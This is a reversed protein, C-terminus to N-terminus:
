PGTRGAAYALIAPRLIAVTLAIAVMLPGARGRQQLAARWGLVAVIAVFISYTLRLLPNGASRYWDGVRMGTSPETLPGAGM